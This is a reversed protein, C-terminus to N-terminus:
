SNRMAQATSIAKQRLEEYLSLRTTIEQELNNTIQKELNTNIKEYESDLKIKKELFNNLIKEELLKQNELDEIEKLKLKRDEELAQKKQQFEELFRATPSLENIRKAEQL